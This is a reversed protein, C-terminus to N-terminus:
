AVGPFFARGHTFSARPAHRPPPPPLSLLACQLLCRRGKADGMKRGTDYIMRGNSLAKAMRKVEWPLKNCVKYEILSNGVKLTCDKLRLTNTTM